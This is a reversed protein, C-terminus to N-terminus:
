TAAAVLTVSEDLMLPNGFTGTLATPSAKVTEGVRPESIPAVSVNSTGPIEGFWNGVTYVGLVDGARVAIPGDVPLYSHLQGNCPDTQNGTHGLVKYKGPGQPSLVQLDYPGADYVCNSGINAQTQFGTVTGDTPMATSTQVWEGGAALGQVPPGTQGVTTDALASGVPVAGFVLCAFLLVRRVRKLVLIRTV